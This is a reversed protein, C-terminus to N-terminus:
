STPVIVAYGERAKRAHGRTSAFVNGRAMLLSRDLACRHAVAAPATHVAGFRQFEIERREIVHIRQRVAPRVHRAVEHERARAAISQLSVHQRGFEEGAMRPRAEVEDLMCARHMSRQLSAGPSRDTQRTRPSSLPRISTDVHPPAAM